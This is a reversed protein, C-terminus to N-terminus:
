DSNAQRTKTKTTRGLKAQGNGKAKGLNHPIRRKQDDTGAQPVPQM